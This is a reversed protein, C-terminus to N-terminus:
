AASQRPGGTKSMLAATRAARDLTEIIEASAVIKEAPDLLYRQHMRLIVAEAKDVRNVADHARDLWECVQTSLPDLKALDPASRRLQDIEGAM